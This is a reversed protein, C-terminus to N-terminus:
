TSFTKDLMAVSICSAVLSVVREDLTTLDGDDKDTMAIRDMLHSIHQDFAEPPACKAKSVAYFDFPEEPSNAFHRFASTFYAQLEVASLRSWVKQKKYQITQSEAIIRERLKM